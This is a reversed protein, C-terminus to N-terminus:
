PRTFLPVASIVRAIYHFGSALPKKGESKKENEKEREREGEEREEKKLFSRAQVPPIDIPRVLLLVKLLKTSCKDFQYIYFSVSPLHLTSCM